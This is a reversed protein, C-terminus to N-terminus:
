WGKVRSSNTGWVGGPRMDLEGQVKSEVDGGESKSDGVAECEESRQRDEGARSTDEFGAFM